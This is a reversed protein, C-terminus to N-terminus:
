KCQNLAARYEETIPQGGLQVCEDFLKKAKACDEKLYYCVSLKYVTNVDKPEIAYSKEFLSIAMNLAVTDNNKQSRISYITALDTYLHHNTLDLSLGRKYIEEAIDLQGLQMYVAGYGWYDDTNTPDLLYAQNFRYMATRLDGERLYQFGLNIMEMSAYRFDTFTSMNKTRERFKEDAELQDPSKLVHGYRPLLRTNTKAEEQWEEFSYEKPQANCYSLSLMYLFLAIVTKM